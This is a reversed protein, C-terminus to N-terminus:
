VEMHALLDDCFMTAYNVESLTGGYERGYEGVKAILYDDGMETMAARFRELVALNSKLSAIEVEDYTGLEVEAALVARTGDIWKEAKETEIVLLKM